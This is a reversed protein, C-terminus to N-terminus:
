IFNERILQSPTPTVGGAELEKQLCVESYINLSSMFQNEEM